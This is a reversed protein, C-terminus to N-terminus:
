RHGGKAMAKRRKHHRKHHARKARKKKASKKKKSVPVNGSGPFGASTAISPPAPPASDGGHCEDAAACNNLNPAIDFGGGTRADYMKLFDGNVDEPVLTDFTSFYVDVGNRSVGELGTNLAGFFASILESGGTSDRNSTGSSILQARGDVYEYVDRLGNTDQPVLAEKTGFFTRGDNAMFPGAESVTVVEGVPATGAPNCSACRLSNTDANYAYVERFGKSNFSTLSSKTMFAAHSGDQSITDREIQLGPELTTVLKLEGKREVYLNREGDGGIEGPVLDEPSYFYIDGSENAILDDLGPVNARQDFFESYSHAAMPNLPQVGCKVTWTASCEDSNGLSGNQSILRLKDGEENWEYLDASTDTDAPLLQETSTFFVKSGDRTMEVFNVEKGRSVEFTMANDVRMYLRAPYGLIYPCEFSPPMSCPPNTTGAMLIHSGNTSVGAIGTIRKPDGTMSPEVPIPEGGVLKSAVEISKTDLNNDYVTGPASASGEPLFKTQTSVVYHSFDGSFRQDGKFRIGGKVVNVDTPLRGLRTGDLKYLYPSMSKSVNESEGTEPNQAITEGVYDACMDQSDSCTRGWRYKTENGKLGPYTTVWGTNTRTAEYVDIFSNPAELGLVSGLSGWYSFRSPSTAYGHNQPSEPMDSAVFIENFRALAEGPLLQVAGAYGPSVIEYARCDPLYASGTAQRVHANPCTPPRFTFTTDDTESKGWENEAVVKYHIVTGPPLESLHVVVTQSTSGTLEGGGVPLSSGYNPTSGYEIHYNTDYGVPNISAHVDASTELVNDAGVGTIEPPSATRFAVDQGKTTGLGNSAVLRYHYTRGRQLHGLALPTAKIEGPSGNIPQSASKLGYNSTPGYEYYYTTALGDADLQGNLTANNEDVGTAPKTELSLVAKAEFRREGGFNNTGHGNGATFKYKYTQGVTLGTLNASVEKPTGGPFPTSENCPVSAGPPTVFVACATVEGGGAPDITGRVTATEHGIDSIAAPKTFVSPLPEGKSFKVIRNPEATVYVNGSNDVDIGQASNGGIQSEGFAPGNQHVPDGAVGPSFPVIKEGQDAYVDNNSLDIDLTQAKISCLYTPFGSNSQTEPCNTDPFAEVLFPSPHGVEATDNKGGFGTNFNTNFQDAEYKSWQGAGDFYMNGWGVWVAGTSDPRIKACCAGYYNNGDRTPLIRKVEQLTNPDYKSIRATQGGEFVVYIFGNQDLGVGAPFGKGTEGKISTLYRGSPEFIDVFGSASYGGSYDSIYIYGPTAGSKDVDVMMQAGFEYPGKSGQSPNAPNENIENGSIYPESATFPIPTGNPSFKRLSGRRENVGVGACAVYVNGAADTAVERPECNPGTPWEEKFPHTSAGLAPAAFLALAMVAVGLVVVGVRSM